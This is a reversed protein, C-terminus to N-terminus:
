QVVTSYQVIEKFEKNWNEYSYPLFLLAKKVPDRYFMLSHKKKLVSPIYLSSEFLIINKGAKKEIM